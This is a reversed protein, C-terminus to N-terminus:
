AWLCPCGLIKHIIKKIAKKVQDGEEWHANQIKNGISNVAQDIIYQAIPFFHDHAIQSNSKWILRFCFAFADCFLEIVIEDIRKYLHDLQHRCSVGEQLFSEGYIYPSQVVQIFAALAALDVQPM